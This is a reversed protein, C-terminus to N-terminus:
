EDLLRSLPSFMRDFESTPSWPALETNQYRAPTTM